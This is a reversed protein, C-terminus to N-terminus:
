VGCATATQGEHWPTLTTSFPTDMGDERGPRSTSPRPSSSLAAHLSARADSPAPAGVAASCM